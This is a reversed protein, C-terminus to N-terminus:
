KSMKQIERNLEDLLIETSQIHHQIQNVQRNCDALRHERLYHIRKQVFQKAESPSLEVHFGMGVNVFVRPENDDLTPQAMCKVKNHGLDVFTPQNLTDALNALQVSLETYDQIEQEFTSQQSKAAKLHQLLVTDLFTTYEDLKAQLESRPVPGPTPSM